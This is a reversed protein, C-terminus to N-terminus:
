KNSSKAAEAKAQFDRASQTDGSKAALNSRRKLEKSFEINPKTQRQHKSKNYQTVVEGSQSLWEDICVLQEQDSFQDRMGAILSQAEETRDITILRAVLEGLAWLRYESSEAIKLAEKLVAIGRGPQITQSLGIEQFYAKAFLWTVRIDGTIQTDALKSEIQKIIKPLLRNDKGTCILSYTITLNCEGNPCEISNILTDSLNDPSLDSSLLSQGIKIYPYVNLTYFTGSGSIFTGPLLRPQPNTESWALLLETNKEGSLLGVSSLQLLLDNISLGKLVRHQRSITDIFALRESIVMGSLLSPAIQQTFEKLEEETLSALFSDSTIQPIVSKITKRSEATFHKEVSGQDWIFEVSEDVRTFAKRKFNEDAFYEGNLGASGKAVIFAAPPIIQRDLVESKWTLAAIPFDRKGVNRHSFELRIDSPKGSTLPVSVSDPLGNRNNRGYTDL